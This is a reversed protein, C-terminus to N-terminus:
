VIMHDEEDHFQFDYEDEDDDSAFQFAFDEEDDTDPADVGSAEDEALTM